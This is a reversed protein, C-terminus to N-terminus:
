ELFGFGMPAPYIDEIAALLQEARLPKPLYSDMGARLFREKDGTMAHATIAIIPIRRGGQKERERIAATAALGDMDPMQIDMLVLDFTQREVADLVAKGTEAVFVAHGRKELLRTALVQNVRNDEALLIKLAPRDEAIAPALLRQDVQKRAQSRLAAALAALQPRNDQKEPLRFRATFHFTSGRGPESEVWIRGGMLAVLRASIALGLGTGGYKRTMSSDAQTFAEFIGRQKEPPIGIGTDTVAFHLEAEATAACSANEVRVTVEGAATFKIANGVLNVILQRLRGPDGRLHEPVDPLIQCALALQKQQARFRLAKVDDELSERLNFDISELDLKQAEIKSFDLIDNLLSLLSNSSGQVMELYERQEPTLETDLALETMGIIGNMPTRIEHSMNALFQNKALSAGEAAQKAAELSANARRLEATRAGVESELNERHQQLLRNLEESEQLAEGLQGNARSLAEEARERETDRVELLLAMDDFSKALRGLEDPTHSLGTRVNMEGKSFRQTATVLRNIPRTLVFDGFVWALSMAVVAAIGLISLNRLLQRDAERVLANKPIGVVMYMYPFSWQNLRLQGSTYLRPVGDQGTRESIGRNFSSSMFQLSKNSVSKGPSATPDNPFRFLRVGKWDTITVVSGEPLSVNSVFRAYEGLDFGATLIAVLNRARDLVPFAYTLGVFNGRRGVIYEGVSFDRTRIADRVHKRDALNLRGATFSIASAFVNGDATAASINAYLPHQSRLERFLRNCAKANRRQVDPLQALVSLMTKTAATIEEQQTVLSQVMLSASNEAQEIENQRQKLGSTVIIGFAPLFILLLFLL